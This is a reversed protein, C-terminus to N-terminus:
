PQALVFPMPECRVLGPIERSIYMRYRFAPEPQPLECRTRLAEFVLEPNRDWEVLYEDTSGQKVRMVALEMRATAFVLPEPSASMQFLFQEAAQEASSAISPQYFVGAAREFQGLKKLLHVTWLCASEGAPSRGRLANGLEQSFRKKEHELNSERMM